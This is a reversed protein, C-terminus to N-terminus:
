LFLAMSEDVAHVHKHNEIIFNKRLLKAKPLEPLDTM